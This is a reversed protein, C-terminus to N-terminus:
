AHRPQPNVAVSCKKHSSVQKWSSQVFTYGVKTDYCYGWISTFSQQAIYFPPSCHMPRLLQEWSSVCRILIPNQSLAQITLTVQWGRELHLRKNKRIVFTTSYAMLNKFLTKYKYLLQSHPVFCKKQVGSYAPSMFGWWGKTINFHKGCVFVSDKKVVYLWGAWPTLMSAKSCESGNVDWWFSGAWFQALMKKDPITLGRRVPANVGDERPM